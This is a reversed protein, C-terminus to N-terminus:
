WVTRFFSKQKKARQLFNGKSAEALLSKTVDCTRVHKSNWDCVLARWVVINLMKSFKWAFM